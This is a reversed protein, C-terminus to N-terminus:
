NSTTTTNNENSSEGQIYQTFITQFTQDKVKINAAQLEKGIVGQVFTADNQKQTLIISQLKEKYDEWNASKESKKTLKVIYFNSTYAQTGPATIVDSVGDVDLAFAAKKVAAPLETSASDFTIEGGNAKTKEDTSNDKALQAFDAGSEKAKALVEKAKDESDLKIIQATVEPTYEEYAKKYNEDTLEAEAAKKVAYEVLKSTRIQQKRSEATMGARALVTQYSDGYKKQEEAVADDVDKDSVESGYQKEFVKQITMNLLVQQATPNNKVEEFFQHETIVDGKMSILDAGQSSTSCAALTAVSLLTIAGALLKKKM